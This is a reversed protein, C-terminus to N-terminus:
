KLKEIILCFKNRSNKKIKRKNIEIKKLFKKDYFIKINNETDYSKSNIM